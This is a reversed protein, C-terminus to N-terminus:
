SKMEELKNQAESIIDIAKKKIEDTLDNDNSIEECVNDLQGIYYSM